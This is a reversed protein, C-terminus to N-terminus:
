QIIFTTFYVGTVKNVGGLRRNLRDRIVARLNDRNRVDLDAVTQSSLISLIQDKIVPMLATVEEQAKKDTVELYVGAKLFRSGNVDYINTTFEGVEVLICKTNSARSQEQQPMLPAILSRIMFYAGGMCMLFIIVGIIIIQLDIGTGPKTEKNESEEAM